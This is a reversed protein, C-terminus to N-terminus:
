AAKGAAKPRFSVNAGPPPATSDNAQEGNVFPVGNPEIGIAACAEGITGNVQYTKGFHKLNWM